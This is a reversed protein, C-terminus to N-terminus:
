QKLKGTGDPPGAGIYESLIEGQSVDNGPINGILWHRLERSVPIIRSPADPDIMCLLYYAGDEATWKVNPVDKVQTPTLENGTDALVGGYSVSLFSIVEELIIEEIDMLLEHLDMMKCELIAAVLIQTYIGM